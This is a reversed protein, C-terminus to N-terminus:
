QLYPYEYICIVLTASVCAIQERINASKAM